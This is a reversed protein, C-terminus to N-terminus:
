PVKFVKNTTPDLALSGSELGTVDLENNPPYPSVVRGPKSGKKGVPTTDVTSPSAPPPPPPPADVKTTEPKDFIEPKSEVKPPEPTTNVVTGPALFGDLDNAPQSKPEPPTSQVPPQPTSVQKQAQDSVQPPTYTTPRNETSTTPKRTPLLPKRTTSQRSAAQAPKNQAKSSYSGGTPTTSYGYVGPNPANTPREYNSIPPPATQTPTSPNYSGTNQPQSYAPQSTTPTRQPNRQGGGFIRRMFGSVRESMADGRQYFNDIPRPSQTQPYGAPTQTQASLSSASILSLSILGLPVAVRRSPLFSDTKM